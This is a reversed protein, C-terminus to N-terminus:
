DKIPLSMVDNHWKTGIGNGHLSEYAIYINEFDRAEDSTISEKTMYHTHLEHLEKKLLEKIGVSMCQCLTKLDAIDKTQEGVILTRCENEKKINYAKNFKRYLWSITKDAGLVIAILTAVSMNDWVM